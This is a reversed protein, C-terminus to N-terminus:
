LKGGADRYAKFEAYSMKAPDKTPAGGSGKVPAIPPPAQTETRPKPAHLSAEIRGIARAQEVPSMTLLADHLRRDTAVAYAVDGARESTKIIDALPNGQPFLGPQTVVKEFDAYVQVAADFSETWHQQILAQREQTLKRDTEQTATVTEKIDEAREQADMKRVEWATKAALYDQYDAYQSESPPQANLRKQLRALEAEAADARAKNEEAETRLREERAKRQERRKASKSEPGETEPAEQEGGETQDTTEIQPQQAETEVPQTVETAASVAAANEDSM